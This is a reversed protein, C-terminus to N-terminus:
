PQLEKPVLIALIADITDETATRALIEIQQRKWRCRAEDRAKAVLAEHKDTWPEVRQRFWRDETAFAVNGNSSFKTPCGELYIFRGSPTILDVTGKSPVDDWRRILAVTMGVAFTM